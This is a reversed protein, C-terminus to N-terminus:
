RKSVIVSNSLVTPGLLFLRVKPEKKIKFKTGFNTTIRKINPSSKTRRKVPSYLEKVLSEELSSKFKMQELLFNMLWTANPSAAIGKIEIIYPIRLPM